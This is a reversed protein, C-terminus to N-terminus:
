LQRLDNVIVKGKYKTQFARDLTDWIQMVKDSEVKVLGESEIIEDAEWDPIRRYRTELVGDPREHIYVKAWQWSHLEDNLLFNERYKILLTM